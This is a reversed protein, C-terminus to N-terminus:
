IITVIHYDWNGSSHLLRDFVIHTTKLKKADYFRGVFSDSSIEGEIKKESFVSKMRIASLHQHSYQLAEITKKIFNTNNSPRAVQVKQEVLMVKNYYKRAENVAFSLVKYRLNNSTCWNLRENKEVAIFERFINLLTLHDSTKDILKKIPMNKKYQDFFLNQDYFVNMPKDKVADLMAVIQSSEKLCYLGFSYLLFIIRNLPTSSFRTLNVGLQTLKDTEPDIIKYMAYIKKSVDIYHKDPADMLGNLLKIGSSLTKDETFLIIKIIDTTIDQRLIDPESYKDFNDFEEKTYLHFCTGPETRGVRGQRQLASAQTIKKKELVDAYYLPDFYSYIEYGCDIVFKLGDITLSSEASNTAVIIKRDYSPDGNAVTSNTKTDTSVVSLYDDKSIALQKMKADANSFFEACFLKPYTHRVKKCIQFTENESTVFFLIDSSNKGDSGGYKLFNNSPINRYIHDIIKLGETMYSHTKNKLYYEEIDYNPQGSISIIESKIGSFYNQYKNSDITASMIVVRLDPRKGSLLINKLFLMLLDIQVKREHAEDIIIVNYESLYPDNIFKMILLGDTMYIIKNNDSIMSDPSGKYKYGIQDGLVVDLTKAAFAASSLTIDRKPLTVAVKGEYKTHHLAFKPLLVTKGSGTGSIIFILQKKDLADLIENVRSYAPYQSWKKALLKYDESYEQNNLPNLNKGYPDLIGINKDKNVM